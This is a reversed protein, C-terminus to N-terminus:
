SIELEPRLWNRRTSHGGPFSHLVRLSPLTEIRGKDVKDGFDCGIKGAKQQMSLSFFYASQSLDTFM